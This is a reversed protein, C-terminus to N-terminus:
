NLKSIQYKQIYLDAATTAGQLSVYSYIRPDNTRVATAIANDTTWPMTTQVQANLVLRDYTYEANDFDATIDLILRNLGRIGWNAADFPWALTTDVYAAAADYGQVENTVGLLSELRVAATVVTAGDYIFLLFIISNWDTDENAVRFEVDMRFKTSTTPLAPYVEANVNGNGASTNQSVHLINPVPSLAVGANTATPLAAVTGSQGTGAVVIRPLAVGHPGVLDVLVDSETEGQTQVSRIYETM